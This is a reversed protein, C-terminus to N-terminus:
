SDWLLVVDDCVKTNCEVHPRVVKLLTEPYEVTRKLKLCAYAPNLHESSDFFSGYIPIM